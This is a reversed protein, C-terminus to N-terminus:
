KRVDIALVAASAARRVDDNTDFLAKKLQPLTSRAAPGLHGLVRASELRIAVSPDTLGHSIAALAQDTDAHARELAHYIGLRVDDDDQSVLAASLAPIAPKALPGYQELATATALQVSLDEAPNLRRILAPVALEPHRPALVGLTRVAAWRVFLNPDATTKVVAPLGPAARDGLVELAELSALRIRAMPDSLGKILSALAEQLSQELPQDAARPPAAPVVGAGPKPQFAAPAALVPAAPAPAGRDTASADPGVAEPRPLVGDAAVRRLTARGPEAPVAARRGSPRKDKDPVPPKEPTPLKESTDPAGAAEQLRNMRRATDGLDEFVRRMELRVAPDPDSAARTFAAAHKRFAKLSGSLGELTGRVVAPDILKILDVSSPTGKPTTIPRAAEGQPKIVDALVRASRRSAIACLRRVIVDEDSLGGAVVPVVEIIARLSRETFSRARDEAGPVPVDRSDIDPRSALPDAAAQAVLFIINALAEAAARRVAVDGDGLLKQLMPVIRTPDGEVAGLGNAAAIRVKASPDDIIVRVEPTMTRLRARLEPAGARTNKERERTTTESWQRRVNTFMERLINVASIRQLEDGHAITNRFATEFRRMLRGEVERLGTRVLPPHWPEEGEEDTPFAWEPLLLVRSLDSLSVIRDLAADLRGIQSSVKSQQLILRVAEVNEDPPPPPAAKVAAASALALLLVALGGCRSLWSSTAIQNPQRVTCAPM